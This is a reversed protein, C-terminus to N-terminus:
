DISIHLTRLDELKRKEEMLRQLGGMDAPDLNMTREDISHSKVRLITDRLAQEEEEKTRLQRIRTNFLSAAERHEEEETFYDLIKAPNMEGHEHQEYLLQAVKRYIEGTFDEPHIYGSIKDYLTRNEIMWTLLAKQSTLIGDEKPKDRSSGDARRPRSLPRAMGASVATKAVLKELSERSIRYASAVAEIYNSRELEDEFALLRRATERFFDTKGEPSAMDYEKELMELSFMFGNRAERIRKEYEEAGLNKIFEDPDKYPDMRVVKASIGADRLIPVARLAARTGAEDSDYTLYVEQVYRKILSAHGPTLATGLSAVANTFGAQHLSIVDMYGECLLFYPKRSSRARNLGYLNRSKDFVETEPSNLYKPKGDGMVRGGFGIVRSNADMIPFIVRNWFKDYVGKKEDTNILGAQRIMDESYGEKRLYQYLDDSFINSYGLGFAKITDDSLGRDKLYTYAKAGRGSKLQVYYYKAAKKNIELIVSKRSAKEKAERSYEPEPLKVGARDALLKVAEQFTLNEYEMLFTYVNGGAGCGFCYYMQKQRSVSFSPSKENHFPCLGFYSSGKKQLRVYGSIVDVIDNRARIEEILEDPYYM